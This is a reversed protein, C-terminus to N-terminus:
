ETPVNDPDMGDAAALSRLLEDCSRGDLKDLYDLQQRAAAYLSLLHPRMLYDGCPGGVADSTAVIANITAVFMADHGDPSLWAIHHRQEYRVKPDSNPRNRWSILINDLVRSLVHEPREVDIASDYGDHNVLSRKVEDATMGANYFVTDIRKGNLFVDFATQM